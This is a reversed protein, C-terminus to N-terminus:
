KRAYDIKNKWQIVNRSFNNNNTKLHENDNFHLMSIMWFYIFLYFLVFCSILMQFQFLLNLDSNSFYEKSKLKLNLEYKCSFLISVTYTNSKGFFIINELKRCIFIKFYSSKRSNFAICSYIFSAYVFTVFNSAM